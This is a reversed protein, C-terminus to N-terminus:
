VPVPFGYLIKMGAIIITNRFARLFNRQGIIYEFNDLGVWPSGTIGLKYVYKKFALQIGYIPIYKFIIYYAVVPILMLYIYKYKAMSQLLTRFRIKTMSDNQHVRNSTLHM